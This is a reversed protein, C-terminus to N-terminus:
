EKKIAKIFDANEFTLPKIFFGKVLPFKDILEQDIPNSSSTLIFINCKVKMKEFRELFEWGTMGPMNLDLLIVTDANIELETVCSLVDNPNTFSKFNTVSLAPNLLLECFYNNIPDDDILIINKM